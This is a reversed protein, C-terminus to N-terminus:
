SWIMRSPHFIISGNVNLALEREWGNMGSFFVAKFDSLKELLADEDNTLHLFSENVKAYVPPSNIFFVPFNITVIDLLGQRNLQELDSRARRGSRNGGPRLGPAVIRSDRKNDRHRHERSRLRPLILSHRETM